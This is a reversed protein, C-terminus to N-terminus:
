VESLEKPHAAGGLRADTYALVKAGVAAIEPTRPLFSLLDEIYKRQRIREIGAAFNMDHVWGIQCLKMDNLTRLDHYDVLRGNMVADLVGPSCTPEDPLEIEFSFKASDERSARYSAIVVRWIDLKDADRILKAFLLAQGRFEGPLAKCGHYLVATEVWQREERRLSDLIGECVLVEVGLRCHDVSRADNHTRYTAFQPFRGIDHLLAIVEAVRRQNDDLALRDALYLIEDCTRRTHEQKLRVHANVYEDDGYFHGTYEEFWHRFREVQEQKM